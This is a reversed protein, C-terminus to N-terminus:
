HPFPFAARRYFSLFIFTRNRKGQGGKECINLTTEVLGMYKVIKFMSPFPPPM